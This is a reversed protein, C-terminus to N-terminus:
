ILIVEIGLFFVHVSSTAILHALVVLQLSYTKVVHADDVAANILKKM